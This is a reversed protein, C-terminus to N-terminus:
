VCPVSGISSVSRVSWLSWVSKGEALIGEAQERGRTPVYEDPFEQRAVPRTDLVCMFGVCRVTEQSGTM